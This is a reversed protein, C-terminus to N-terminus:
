KIKLDNITYMRKYTSFFGKKTFVIYSTEEKDLLDRIEYLKTYASEENESLIIISTVVKNKKDMYDIRIKHM